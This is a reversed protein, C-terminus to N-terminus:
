ITKIKNRETWINLYRQLKLIRISNSYIKKAYQYNLQQSLYENLLSSKDKPLTFYAVFCLIGTLFCVVGFLIMYKSIKKM